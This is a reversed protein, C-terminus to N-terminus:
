IDAVPALSPKLILRLDLCFDQVKGSEVFNQYSIESMFKDIIEILEGKTEESIDDINSPSPDL